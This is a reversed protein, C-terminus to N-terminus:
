LVWIIMLNLMMISFVQSVCLVCLSRVEDTKACRSRNIYCGVSHMTLGITLLFLRMTAMTGRDVQGRHLMNIKYHIGSM